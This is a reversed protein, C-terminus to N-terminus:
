ICHWAQAELVTGSLWSGYLAQVRAAYDPNKKVIKPLAEKLDTIGEIALFSTIPYADKPYLGELSHAKANLGSTVSMLVTLFMTLEPDYILVDPRNKEARIKPKIGGETQGLIDTVESVSYTTPIVIQPAGKCLATAKRLGITSGGGFAGICDAGLENYVQMSRETTAFPTRMVADAFMGVSLPSLKEVLVEADVKQFATSLILTKCCGLNRIEDALNNLSGNGFIIRSPSSHYVFTKV